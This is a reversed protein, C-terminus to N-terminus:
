KNAKNIRDQAIKARVSQASEQVAAVPVPKQGKVAAVVLSMMDVAINSDVQNKLVYDHCTQLALACSRPEYDGQISGELIDKECEAIARTLIPAFKDKQIHRQCYDQISHRSRFGLFLALGTITKPIKRHYTILEGRKSLKEVQEGAECHKIYETIKREL